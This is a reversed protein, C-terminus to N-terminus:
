PNLKGNKILKSLYYAMEGIIAKKDDKRFDDFADFGTFKTVKRLEEKKFKFSLVRGVLTIVDGLIWKTSTGIRIDPKTCKGGTSLTYLMYPIDFGAAIPTALGGTFRANMEIFGLRGSEKDYRFDLGCVGNYDASDLFKHAYEELEPMSIIERQTTTGGGDTKTVLARYVTAQFFDNWRLCDVCIDNGKLWEEILVESGNYKNQLATLEHHNKPFYVGKASNGIVTKFVVPFNMVDGVTPYTVPVPVGAQEALETAIRKNSLRNLKEESEIPIILDKPFRHRNRAIIIGEDHTPMLVRPRLENIKQLLVTIFAEEETFPDPYVFSGACFRSMSCINHRSTDAAWVKLGKDSLSRLINYGVRNWCYTVIVDCKKIETM